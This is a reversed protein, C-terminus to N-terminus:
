GAYQMVQNIIWAGVQHVEHECTTIRGRADSNKLGQHQYQTIRDDEAIVSRIREMYHPLTDTYRDDAIVSQHFCVGVDVNVENLSVPTKQIWWLTDQATIFFTGPFLMSYHAGNLGAGYAAANKPLPVVDSDPRLAPTKDSEFYLSIWDGKTAVPYVAQKGISKKHVHPIHLTEMDVEVYLKWNCEINYNWHEFSRMDRIAHPEAVTTKFNGLQESLTHEPTNDFNVFVLNHEVQAYIEILNSGISSLADRACTNELGPAHILQGNLDYSWKHFPCVFNKVFGRTELTLPAGRHRCTNLYAKIEDARNRVILVSRGCFERQVYQGPQSLDSALCAFLWKKRFIAAVELNFWDPSTYCWRPPSGHYYDSTKNFNDLLSRDEVSFMRYSTLLNVEINNVQEFSRKM